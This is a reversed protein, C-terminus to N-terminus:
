VLRSLVSLILMLGVAPLAYKMVKMAVRNLSNQWDVFRDDTQHIFLQFKSERPLWTLRGKPIVAPEFLRDYLHKDM